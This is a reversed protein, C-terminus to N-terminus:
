SHAAKHIDPSKTEFEKTKIRHYDLEKSLENLLELDIKEAVTQGDPDELLWSM